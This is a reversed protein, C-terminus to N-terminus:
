ADRAGNLFSTLVRVREEESPATRYTMELRAGDSRVVVFGPVSAQIIANPSEPKQGEDEAKVKRPWRTIWAALVTALAPIVVQSLVLIVEVVEHPHASDTEGWSRVPVGLDDALSHLLQSRQKAYETTPSSPSVESEHRAVALTIQGKAPTPFSQQLRNLTISM